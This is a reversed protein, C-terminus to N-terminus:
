PTGCLALMTGAALYPGFRLTDGRQARGRLLLWAGYAGGGVFATGLATVGGLPGLGAGIAVALKVDGLGIGRGRTAVYLLALAGGALAAGDFAAVADGGALALVAATMATCRTIRDPIYGTRADVLAGAATGCCTALAALLMM